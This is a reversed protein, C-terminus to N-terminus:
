PVNARAPHRREHERRRTRRHVRLASRTRDRRAGGAVSRGAAAALERELVWQRGMTRIWADHARAGIRRSSHPAAPPLPGHDSSRVRYTCGHATRRPAAWAIEPVRITTHARHPCAGCARGLTLRTVFARRTARPASAASASSRRRACIRPLEDEPRARDRPPDSAIIATKARRHRSSRRWGLMPPRYADVLIRPRAGIDDPTGPLKLSTNALTHRDSRPTLPRRAAHVLDVRAHV